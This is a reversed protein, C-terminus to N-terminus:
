PVSLGHPSSGSSDEGDSALALTWAFVQIAVPGAITCARWGSRNAASLALGLVAALLVAIALVSGNREVEGHLTRDFTYRRDPAVDFTALEVGTFRVEQGDCGSVAGFPLTFALIAGAFASAAVRRTRTRARRVASNARREVLRDSTHPETLL